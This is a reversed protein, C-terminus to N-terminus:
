RQQRAREDLGIRELLAVFRPHSHLGEFEFPARALARWGDGAEFAIELWDIARDTEGLSAHVIALSVPSVYEGETRRLLQRALEAARARDGAAAHAYVLRSVRSSGGPQLEIAQQLTSIAQEYKGQAVFVEAMTRLVFPLHVGLEAARRAEAEAEDYRGAYLLAMALDQGIIPSLPDLQRALRTREIAEDYRGLALLLIGYQTHNWADSPGFEIARLFRDEAAAWDLHLAWDSWGLLSHVKGITDDIELARKGAERSKRYNEAAPMDLSSASCCALLNYADCLGVYALVFDPFKERAETFYEISRQISAVSWDTTLQRNGKLYLDYAQLDSTPEREIRERESPSVRARLAGAIQLAVDSQIAFVDTLERDYTEAWLHADTRVDILQATIRLRRDARRVSGELLATAGLEEGIERSGQMADRYRMVSTRSIVRFSSIKAIQSIIEDHIGDVFWADAEGEPSLNDFPLVAIVAIDAAEGPFRAERTSAVITNPSVETTTGGMRWVTLGLALVLVGIIAYDMRRGRRLRVVEAEPDDPTKVLGEPTWDFVWGLVLAIPFGLAVLIILFRLSGEPLGLPEFTVEGIQLLLWGVVAYMAAARLVNRRKLEQFLGPRDSM